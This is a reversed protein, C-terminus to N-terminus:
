PVLTFNVTVDGSLGQSVSQTQYGTASAEITYQGAVSVQPALAIPLTASYQGLLPADVPLTLSYAGSASDDAAVSKVTVIPASGFTQKAAVYATTTSSAPNLTEAGSVVHTASAPLTIPTVNDSVNVTSTTSAVPVAAIVATAHDDATLVVDYNGPALRALFFEGTHANPASTQVVTGDQQATVMVNSGLLATDVFGDIGNVAFPVVKIVPKLAYTGNGRKVVSKCADFDLVLDVRQGSTVDFENILKIGSQVASPTILPTEVGGAPVVSNTMGAATNPDLVLRLQTYHGAPLPTEGLNDLVGNTLNLLNIKRAPNLTIDTWGADTDSASSSQHVRVKVVTVNVADFGCSPADTLSVGLTGSAAGGGGGGGGGCGVMLAAFLSAAFWTLARSYGNFLKM